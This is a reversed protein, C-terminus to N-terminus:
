QECVQWRLVRIASVCDEENKQFEKPADQLDRARDASGQVDETCFQCSNPPTSQHLQSVVLKFVRQLVRGNRRARPRLGIQGRMFCSKNQLPKRGPTLHHVGTSHLIPSESGGSIWDAVGGGKVRLPTFSM